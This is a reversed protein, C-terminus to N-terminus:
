RRPFADEGGASLSRFLTVKAHPPSPSTTAGTQGASSAAAARARDGEALQSKFAEQEAALDALRFRIRGEETSDM